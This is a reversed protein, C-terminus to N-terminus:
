PLAGKTLDRTLYRRGDHGEVALVSEVRRGNGTKAIAVIVNVAAAIITAMPAGTAEAILQEVRILGAEGQAPGTNAHVTALGGPHGTNWAKLLALAEPGRVEGVIIRDPRLRMMAKLLRLMDVHSTARTIVANESRCQLESTDEIIGIREHPFFTAIADILANTM